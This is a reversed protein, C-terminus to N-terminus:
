FTFLEPVLFGKARSKKANSMGNWAAIFQFTLAEVFFKIDHRGSSGVLKERIPCVRAKTEFNGNEM